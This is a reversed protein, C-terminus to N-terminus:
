AIGLNRARAVAELRSQVQLKDMINSVHRKVTGIEVVLEHAIAQNSKGAALLHLVELERPTLSEGGAVQATAVATAEGSEQMNQVGLLMAAYHRLNPEVQETKIVNSLLDALPRGEDVFLRVYGEPSALRLARVLADIAAGADGQAHMALAALMLINIVSHIRQHSEANSVLRDLLHLVDGLRSTSPNQHYQVIRIRALTLWEQERLYDLEDEPQWENSEAWHVAAKLDKQQLALYAVAADARAHLYSAYNWKRVLMQLERLTAM